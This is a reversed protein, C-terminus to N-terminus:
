EKGALRAFAGSVMALTPHLGSEALRAFARRAEMEDRYDHRFSEDATHWYLTWYQRPKADPM